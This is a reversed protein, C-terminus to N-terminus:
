ARQWRVTAPRFSGSGGQDSRLMTSTFIAAIGAARLQNHGSRPGTPDALDARNVLATVARATLPPDWLAWTWTGRKWRGAVGPVGVRDPRIRYTGFATLGCLALWEAGPETLKTDGAPNRGTLAYVRDDAVDWMLSPLKSSMTWPGTLAQAVEDATVGDRIERAMRLFKQQGATFHLDTPKAQGKGKDLAFECVLANALDASRGDDEAANCAALYDRIGDNDRFKVDDIPDSDIAYQLAPSQAWRERDATIADVITGLDAGHLTPTHEIGTTWSLAVPRGITRTCALLTGIAALYGLPNSGDLGTLATTNM